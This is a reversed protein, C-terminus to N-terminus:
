LIPFVDSTMVPAFLGSVRPKKKQCCVLKFRGIGIFRVTGYYTFGASTIGANSVQNSVHSSMMIKMVNQQQCFYVLRSLGERYLGRRRCEDITRCDWIYAEGDILLWASKRFIPIPHSRKNDGLTLWFYSVIDGRDNEFGFCRHGNKLHNLYRERRNKVEFVTHNFFDDSVLERFKFEKYATSLPDLMSADYRYQNLILKRIM